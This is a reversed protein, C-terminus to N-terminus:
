EILVMHSLENLYRKSCSEVLLGNAYIGYNGYYNDNELALHYITYSGPIKYVSARDDICAPLRYKGDTVFTDGNVEIVKERQEESKFGDVLISHGGTIILPEFVESYEVSSCEYLQDTIRKKSAHHVMERKGVMHIPKYGHNLTKVLDGPKLDQILIYGQDTLIATDEKFCILPLSIQSIYNGSGNAVYMNAGAIALGSPSSLGQATTAWSLTYSTPDSILIKSITNNQINAVYMYAGTIVIASPYALGQVTTAWETFGTSPNSM